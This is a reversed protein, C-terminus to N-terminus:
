QMPLVNSKEGKYSQLTKEMEEKVKDDSAAEVAERQTEIAKETQGEDHLIRALTDLVAADKRNTLTVGQEALREALKLDRKEIRKETAITWALANCAQANDKITDFVQDGLAYAEDYKKMQLFIQFKVVAAQKALRPDAKAADDIVKSVENTDGSKVAAALKKQLANQQAKAAGEQEAVKKSDFSGAVVKELVPEMAMPHGIWAIKGQQDVIISCPIGNQGAAALWTEAMVGRESSSKDDMAVRYGMKDGMSKVFPEVNDDDREWVNQGIVIVKGEYKKQLETVHPIAAKCPGCWTAWFEMVYVKGPEFKTVPEGKVFKSMKLAPAPDGVKLTVERDQARAASMVGLVTALAVAGTMVKHAVRTRIWGGGLNVAGAM